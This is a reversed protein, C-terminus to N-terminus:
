PLVVKFTEDFDAASYVAVAQVDEDFVVLWDGPDFMVGTSGNQDCFEVRGDGQRNTWNAVWAPWAQDQPNYQWCRHGARPVCRHNAVTDVSVVPELEASV